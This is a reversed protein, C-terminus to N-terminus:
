NGALMDVAKNVALQLVSDSATTIQTITKARNQGLVAKLLQSALNGTGAFATQAWAKRLDHQTGTDDEFGNSADDDGNRILEAAVIAAVEVRNALDSGRQFLGRLELYTAM